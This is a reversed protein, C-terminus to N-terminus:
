QNTLKTVWLPLCQFHGTIDQDTAKNTLAGNQPNNFPSPLQGMGM